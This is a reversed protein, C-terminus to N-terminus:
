FLREMVQCKDETEQLEKEPSSDETVGAGIYFVVNKNFIQACRLNVYIDTHQHINIPGIYGTYLSRDFAENELIFRMAAEKPMGCTASTPHLLQLLMGALDEYEVEHLDIKYTTKLHLLNGAKITKPGEELFERLRIQKFCNIIYRSVLAQEEIEKQTWVAESPHKGNAPQTGALAVTQMRDQNRQLLLEPSAGIWTGFASTSTLSVFANPYHECAKKFAELPSVASPKVKIRAPVIKRFTEAQIQAIGEAVYDVYSSSPTSTLGGISHHHFHLYEQIESVNMMRHEDAPILYGQAATDFPHLVFGSQQSIDASTIALLQDSAIFHVKDSDPYRFLAFNKLVIQDNRGHNIPFHM